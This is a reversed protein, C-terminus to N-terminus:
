FLWVFGTRFSGDTSESTLGAGVGAKIIFHPIPEWYVAGIVEHEGHRDFDGVAEVGISFDPRLKQRLGLGYGWAASKGEPLVSIVNAVLLTTPTLDAEVIFRGIFLSDDHNHIGNREHGAEEHEPEEHHGAEGDHGHAEPEEEHHAPDPTGAFQYAAAIGFRVPLKLDPPTLDFHFGPTVSRYEWGAGAEDMFDAQLSLATRPLLGLLVGTSYSLTDDEGEDEYAFTGLALGHGAAPIRTDDLLFFDQGHHASASTAFTLILSGWIPLLTFKM